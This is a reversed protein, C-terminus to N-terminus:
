RGNRRGPGRCRRGPCSTPRDNCAFQCTLPGAQNFNGCLSRSPPRDVTGDYQAETLERVAPGSRRPPTRGSVPWWGGVIAKAWPAPVPVSLGKMAAVLWAKELQMILEESLWVDGTAAPQRGERLPRTRTRPLDYWGDLAWRRPSERRWVQRTARRFRGGDPPHHLPQRTRLQPWRRPQRPRHSPVV